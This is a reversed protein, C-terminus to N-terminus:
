KDGGYAEIRAVIALGSEKDILPQENLLAVLAVEARIQRAQAEDMGSKADSNAAFLYASLVAMLCLLTFLWDVLSPWPAKHTRWLLGHKLRQRMHRTSM